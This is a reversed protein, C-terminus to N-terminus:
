QQNDEFNYSGDLKYLTIIGSVSSVVLRASFGAFRGVGDWFTCLGSNTSFDLSCRGRAWDGAGVYLVVNSDILASIAGVGSDYFLTAGTPILAPVNTQVITCSSGPTGNSAIFESCDKQLHLPASYAAGAGTVLGLAAIISVLTHRMKEMRGVFFAFGAHRRGRSL